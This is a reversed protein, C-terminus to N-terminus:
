IQILYIFPKIVNTDGQSSNANVTTSIDYIIMSNNALFVALLWKKEDFALVKKVEFPFTAENLYRVSYRYLVVVKNFPL